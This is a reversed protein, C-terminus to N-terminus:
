CGVRMALWGRCGNWSSACPTSTRPTMTWAPGTLHPKCVVVSSITLGPQQGMVQVIRLRQSHGRVNRWHLTDSARRQLDTRLGALLGSADALHEDPVIVASM